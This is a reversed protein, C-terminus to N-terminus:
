SFTTSDFICVQARQYLDVGHITQKVRASIQDGYTLDQTAVLVARIM